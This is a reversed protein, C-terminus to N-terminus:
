SQAKGKPSARVEKVFLMIFTITLLAFGLLVVMQFPWLPFDLVGHKYAHKAFSDQLLAVARWTCFGICLAGVVHGFLRCIHGVRASLWQELITIRIHGREHTVYAIALFTLLVNFEEIFQKGNPVSTKFVKASIVDVTAIIMILAGFVAAGISLWKNVSTVGTEVSPLLNKSKL